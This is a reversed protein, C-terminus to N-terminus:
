KDHCTLCLASGTNEVRLFGPIFTIGGSDPVGHPDHCSACEVEYGEGSDYARLENKDARGNAGNREFFAYRGPILVDMPRFDVGSEGATGTPYLVGVPHDNRLDISSRTPEVYNGDADTGAGIVFLEFDFPSSGNHCLSACDALPQNDFTDASWGALFGPDVSERQSEQYNGSGPMNIISDIATVGDHCSLCTLSAPGPATSTQQLTTARADTYLQYTLGTDVTRNWLPMGAGSTQNAGHPTHCYVCVEGYDNRRILMTALDAPLTYSMTMNHRTDAIGFAVRNDAESEPNWGDAVVISGFGQAVVVLAVWSARKM